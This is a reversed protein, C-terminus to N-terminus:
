RLTSRHQEQNSTFSLWSEELFTSLEAIALGAFFILVADIPLRYRVLAWTLIHILSYIIIFLYILALPSNVFDQGFWRKSRGNGITRVLGYIIFPLFFGFSSVRALNSITSSAPDPWFKFYEPVRSLSLRIYRVPDDLIFGIGRQLLAQDLAAEDLNRLEDPILQQYTDGMEAAPIFKTGQIPHNAWFLVYGSNTNLPVFRDFRIYNYLTVPLIMAALVFGVVAASSLLRRVAHKRYAIGFLWLFLFPIFLLVLQRLLLGVGACIGLALAVKWYGNETIRESLHITLLLLGLVATIFFPETMLTGAYYIFYAYIATIGAALMPVRRQYAAHESLNDGLLKRALLFALYPQLVGVAVAQILRAILPKVGFLAYVGVLYLTYIFSWHATPANAATVPWWAEGFSFGHGDLVRIALNHYSVQDATGPLSVVQNGLYLAAGVRLVVSLVLIFKLNFVLQKLRDPM